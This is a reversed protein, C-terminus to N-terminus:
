KVDRPPCNIVEMQTSLQGERRIEASFLLTLLFFTLVLTEIKMKIIKCLLFVVKKKFELSLSMLFSTEFTTESIVFFDVFYSGSLQLAGLIKSCQFLENQM